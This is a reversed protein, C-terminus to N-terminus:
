HPILQKVKLSFTANKSKLKLKANETLNETEAAFTILIQEKKKKKGLDAAIDITPQLLLTLENVSSSKKIKQNSVTKAQYDAVARGYRAQEVGIEVTNNDLSPALPVYYTVGSETDSWAPGSFYGIHRSDTTSIPIDTETMSPDFSKRLLGAFDLDKAKFGPTSANAINGSILELRQNKLTLAAHNFAFYDDISRTMIVLRDQM